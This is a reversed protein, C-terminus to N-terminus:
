AKKEEFIRMFPLDEWFVKDDVVHSINKKLSASIYSNYM